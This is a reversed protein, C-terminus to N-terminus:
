TKINKYIKIIERINKEISFTSNRLSNVKDEKNNNINKYKEILSLAKIAWLKNDEETNLCELHPFFQVLEKIPKIDSALVPINNILVEIVGGPLGERLSPYIMLSINKIHNPIDNQIGKFDVKDGLNNSDIYQTLNQMIKKDIKGILLIKYEPDIKNIQNFVELVKIHNKDSIMRGIHVIIKEKKSGETITEEDFGNYIVEFKKKYLDNGSLFVNKVSESVCIINTSFVCICKLLLKNASRKIYGENRGSGTSRFHSIRVTVKNLWAFFQILGSIYLVHSHVVQYNENRLLKNFRYFFNIDNINIYFIKSGDRKVYDDLSGRKGSLCIYDFYIGYKQLKKALTITRLEAGGRELQSFVHLVRM